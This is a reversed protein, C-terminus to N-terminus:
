RILVFVGSKDIMEGSGSVFRGKFVYNGNPVNEGNLTGDWGQDEMSKTEYILEGWTSFIYFEMSAIGRYYPRFTLNKTGTPTFANPIMIAYDNLVEVVVQYTSICGISDIATLMVTYVGKEQYQHVPNQSSSSNGDGFDWDWILVNGQSLDLFNVNEQIQIEANPLLIGGGLDAEYQFDAVLATDAILVRIHQAQNFCGTGKLSSSVRYDGSVAVSALEDLRMANDSPSVIRYDYINPNFGEIFDTLDVTGTPDCIISPNSVRLLPVKYVKISVPKAELGCIGVGSVKVYYTYAAGRPSLGEVSLAGLSNISYTVGDLTGTSIPSTGQPDFSWFFQPKVINQPVSPTSQAVEGHCIADDNATLVTPVETITVTNPVTISCGQADLVKFEYIGIGLNSIRVEGATILDASGANSGNKTYTITYPVYGGSITFRVEGNDLGCSANDKSLDSTSLAAGPGAVPINAINVLCGASTRVQVNHTGTAVQFVNTSGFAGGNLSYTYSGSDGTTNIVISGGAGFCVENVVTATPNSYVRVKGNGTFGPCVGAGSATVYYSYETVSAPLNGITLEGTATNIQYIRGDGAPSPSSIISETTTADLFWQFSAGAAIPNLEPMLSAISGVCIEDSDVLLQTPGDVLTVTNTIVLCGEKDTIRIQYVGPRYGGLSINSQNITQLGQSVGDKIIALTYPLWGGTVTLNLQGNPAGCGPDVKTLPSHDLLASPGDITFSTSQACGAPTAIALSYTGAALNLAEFATQNIPAEDNVSYSYTPNDGSLVKVKGNTDGFCVIAKPELTIAPTDYVIIDIKIEQGTCVVYFYFDYTGAPLGTIVLEPHLWDTDDITYNVSSLVPDAGNQILGIQGPDTYWRVETAAAPPLSLDPAIHLPRIVVPSGVCSNVPPVIAYVPDSSEEVLFDFISLCGETDSVILYYTNPLLDLAESVTGSIVSGTISGARWEVTYNGWGGTIVLDRISGNALDCSAREITPSNISIPATPGEVLVTEAFPCGIDNRIEVTYSGPALNSYTLDTTFPSSDFSVEFVGNGGRPVITIVGDTNGFCTINDVTIDAEIAAFVEADAVEVFTCIGPGSIELYYNFNGASQDSITLRGDAPDIQYTIGESDPTPSSTIPQNLAADKYWSLVPTVSLMPIFVPSFVLDQGVCVVDKMPNVEVNFGTENTLTFLNPLNLPCDNVDTIALSYEGPALNKVEYVGATLSTSYASIPLNNMVLTYPTVGGTIEFKVSGNSDGCTPDIKTQDIIELQAPQTVTVPFEEPCPSGAEQVRINYNGASLGSFNGTSNSAGTELLTFTNPGAPDVLVMNIKGDNGGFCSVPVETFNAVPIKLITVKAEIPAAACIKDGAVGMFYSFPIPSFTLGTITLVGNTIDYTLDGVRDGDNIEILNGTPDEFSWTYVPTAGITNSVEIPTVVVPTGECVTVDNVDYEPIDTEGITISLPDTCGKADTISIDYTDPSLNTLTFDNTGPVTTLDAGFSALPSGNVSITYGGSGNQNGGSVTFSLQGNDEACTADVRSVENSVLPSPETIIIGPFIAECDNSKVTLAYIGPPLSSFLGSNNAFPKSIGNDGLLSYQFDGLNGSLLQAQIIGNSEGNCTVQTTSPTVPIPMPNVIAVAPETLTCIGAGSIELYYTYNGAIQGSITLVGNTPNIQYTIGESDPTPSSTIPQNLAADKYWSLVPTVSLMPIFVPSFVLDQGVCVVDKMPNVEVNFGTENTLTFLNPLNLPCDNVDTIALSYEGPALNKVEYVGATLSTSYASIPLNNMVLTYPTVGGTIEFKVSGNSDGCTPNEPVVTPVALQAPQTIVVDDISMECSTVKNGSKLGITYNGQPLNNFVAQATGSGSTALYPYSISTNTNIATYVYSAPGDGGAGNVTITGGQGFCLEPVEVVSTIELPNAIPDITFDREHRFRPPDSLEDRFNDGIQFVYAGAPLGLLDTPEPYNIVSQGVALNRWNVVVNGADDVIRWKEGDSSGASVPAYDLNVQITGLEVCTERTKTWVPNLDPALRITVASASSGVCGQDTTVEVTYDGQQTALYTPQYALPILTGDRFWRYTYGTGTVGSDWLVSIDNIKSQEWVRPDLTDILPEPNPNITITIEKPDSVQGFNDTATYYVTVTGSYNPNGEFKVKPVELGGELELVLTFKGASEGNADKADLIQLREERCLYDFCDGGDCLDINADPPFPISADNQILVADPESEYLQICRIFGNNEDNVLTIPPFTFSNIGGECTERSLPKIEPKDLSNEDSVQVTVNRIDHFNVNNGTAAAFGVKLLEPSPFNYSVPSDFVQILEPGAGVINVLMFVQISFKTPRNSVPDIEEPRLDIFVKRYGSDDCNEPRTLSNADITFRDYKSNLFFRDDLEVFVNPSLLSPAIIPPNSDNKSFNLIKGDIFQYSKYRESTSGGIFDNLRDREFFPTTIDELGGVPGRIVVSHPYHRNNNESVKGASGKSYPPDSASFFAGYKGNSINGFNGLEDFGIGLYAGKLGPESIGSTTQLPAYGLAGGVGGIEFNPSIQGLAGDFMFFSFGDARIDETSGYSFYEFSLKLGFKSPFPIDVYVFGNQDQENQTLRLFGDGSPDPSGSTLFPKWQVGNTAIGTGGFVTNARTSSETFTECYPFGQIIPIIIDALVRANGAGPITDLSVQSLAELRQSLQSLQDDNNRFPSLAFIAGLSSLMLLLFILLKSYSNKSM